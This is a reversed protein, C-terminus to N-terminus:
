EYRYVVIQDEYIYFLQLCNKDCIIYGTVLMTSLFM